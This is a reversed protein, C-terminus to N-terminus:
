GRAAFYQEVAKTIGQAIVEQGHASDAISGEFPDTIFLPEILAGPMESPTSFFGPDAPGLLLLHGYAEAKSALSTGPDSVSGLGTDPQVGRDPIQWGQANMAGLVDDQVLTALRLNAAAFPRDADYGTLSGAGGDGADMYIGILVNAGADNACIDRAAVDSHVGAATLGTGSVDANTLRVVSEARTRSVVVRFGQDTLLRMADLEIPLTVDAEYVAQGSETSGVAGPDIGGHGADLFVTEGRNGSSAPYAVCAGSSFASADIAQAGGSGHLIFAVAVAALLALLALWRLRRHPRYITM